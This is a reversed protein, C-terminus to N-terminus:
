PANHSIGKDYKKKRIYSLKSQQIAELIVKIIDQVIICHQIQLILGWVVGRFLPYAGPFVEFVFFYRLIPIDFLYEPVHIHLFEGIELSM